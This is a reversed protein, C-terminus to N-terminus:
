EACLVGQNFASTFIGHSGVKSPRHWVQQLWIHVLMQTVIFFRTSHDPPLHVSVDHHAKAKKNKCQLMTSCVNLWRKWFTSAVLQARWKEALEKEAYICKFRDDCIIMELLDWRNIFKELAMIFSNPTHSHAIPTHVAGSQMCNFVCGYRRLKRRVLQLKFPVSNDVGRYCFACSGM